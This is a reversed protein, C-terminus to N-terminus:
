TAYTSGEAQRLARSLTSPSVRLIRAVESQKMRAGVVMDHARDIEQQNLAPKRGRRRRSSRAANLGARTREFVLDRQFQQIAAITDLFYRGEPTSTDIRESLSILAINRVRLTEITEILHRLTAALRELRWVVLTDGDRLREILKTLAARGPPVTGGSSDTEIADCGSAAVADYEPNPPDGPASPGRIYGVRM